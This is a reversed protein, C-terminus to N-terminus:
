TKRRQEKRREYVLLDMPEIRREKGKRHEIPLLNFLRTTVIGERVRVLRTVEITAVKDDVGCSFVVKTVDKEDVGLMDLISQIEPSHATLLKRNDM